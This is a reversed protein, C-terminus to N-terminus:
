KKLHNKPTDDSPDFLNGKISSIAHYGVIFIINENPHQEAYEQVFISEKPSITKWKVRLANLTNEIDVSDMGETPDIGELLSYQRVEEYSIECAQAIAATACDTDTRQKIRIM